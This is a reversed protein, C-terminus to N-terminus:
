EADFRKVAWNRDPFWQEAFEAAVAASKFSSCWEGDVWLYFDNKPGLRFSLSLRALDLRTQIWNAAMQAYSTLTSQMPKTETLKLKNTSRCDAGVKGRVGM